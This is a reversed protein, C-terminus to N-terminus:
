TKHKLSLLGVDSIVVDGAFATLVIVEVSNVAKFPLHRQETSNGTHQLGTGHRQQRVGKETLSVFVLMLVNRNADGQDECAHDHDGTLDSAAKGQESTM